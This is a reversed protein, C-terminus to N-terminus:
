DGHIARKFGLIVDEKTTDKDDNWGPIGFRNALKVSEALRRAAEIFAESHDHQVVDARGSTARMMAGLACASATEPLHSPDDWVGEYLSGQNWGHQEIDDLAGELIEEPTM